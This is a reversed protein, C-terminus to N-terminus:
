KEKKHNKIQNRKWQQNKLPNKFHSHPPPITNKHTISNLTRPFSNNQIYQQSPDGAFNPIANLDSSWVYSWVHSTFFKDVRRYNVHVDIIYIVYSVLPYM